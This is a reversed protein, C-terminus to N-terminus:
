NKWIKEKLEAGGSWSETRDKTEDLVREVVEPSVASAQNGWSSRLHSTIAAIEKSTLKGKFGPMVGKFTKGQVEIEGKLGHLVIAPVIEEPGLVWESGKLPPFASGVGLGTPQHCAQCHRKYLDAGMQTLDQGAGVPATMASRPTRKDGEVWDTRTTHVGLYFCGFVILSAWLTLPVAMFKTSSAERPDPKESAIRDAEYPHSM